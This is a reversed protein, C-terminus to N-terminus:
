GRECPRTSDRNRHVPNITHWFSTGPTNMGTIISFLQLDQTVTTLTVAPWTSGSNHWHATTPASCGPVIQSKNHDDSGTSLYTLDWAANKIGGQARKFNSNIHKLMKGRQQRGFYMIAFALATADFFGDHVSWDLFLRLKAAPPSHFQRRLLAIKLLCCYHCRWHRLRESFNSPGRDDPVLRIANQRVDEPIQNTRSLAFDAYAQPHVHDARRFWVVDNSAWSAPQDATEYLSINPEITVDAAILFAM